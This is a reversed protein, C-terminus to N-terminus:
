FGDLAPTKDGILELLARLVENELFIGELSGTEEEELAEFSLGEISPRWGGEKSFLSKFAGVVGEKLERDGAVCWPDNWLGRITGLEEWIDEKEKRSYPECVGLTPMGLCNSFTALSSESWDGVKVRGELLVEVIPSAEDEKDDKNEVFVISFPNVGFRHSGVVSPGCIQIRSPFNSVTCLKSKEMESDFHGKERLGECNSVECGGSSEGFTGQLLWPCFEWWLRVVYYYCGVRIQVLSPRIIFGGCSDGLRKFLEKCWLPLGVLRVWEDRVMEGNRLCGVEPNWMGGETLGNMLEPVWSELNSVRELKGVLCLNWHAERELVGMKDEMMRKEEVFGSHEVPTSFSRAGLSHLKSALTGWDGKNCISSEEERWYAETGELLCRLSIEGFKIWSTCGRGKEVIVRKLKGFVEEISIEFSKAEVVFWNRGGRM